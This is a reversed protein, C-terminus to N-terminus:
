EIVYKQKGYQKLMELAKQHAINNNDFGGLFEVDAEVRNNLTDMRILVSNSNSKKKRIGLVYIRTQTGAYTRKLCAAMEKVSLKGEACALKLFEDDDKSWKVWRRDCIEKKM